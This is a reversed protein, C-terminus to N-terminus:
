IPNMTQKAESKLNFIKKKFCFAFILFPLVQSFIHTLGFFLFIKLEILTDGAVQRKKVILVGSVLLWCLNSFSLSINTETLVFIIMQKYFCSGSSDLSALFFFSLSAKSVSLLPPFYGLSSLL